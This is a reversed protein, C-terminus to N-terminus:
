GEDKQNLAKSEAFHKKNLRDAAGKTIAAIDAMEAKATIQHNPREVLKVRAKPNEIAVSKRNLIKRKVESIRLGLTTTETLCLSCVSEIDEPSVLIQLQTFMRGKKGFVPAQYIEIVGTHQRINDIAVALDEATQDDIEFSIIAINNEEVAKNAETFAICRVVNVIQPFKKSGFGNGVAEISMTSTSPPQSSLSLLYKVITAGTPTVREGMIGDDIIPMGKILIATAPAPVPLIGHLSNVQGGGLPLPSFTWKTFKLADIFHAAAIFDIISDWAGVEHFTVAKLKIGHVEAEASALLAFLNLSHKLVNPKLNLSHLLDCIESYHAHDHVGKSSQLDHYEIAEFRLGHLIGDNYEVLQIEGRASIALKKLEAIIEAGLNPFTSAMAAIFMDGAIGGILDLHIRKIQDLM